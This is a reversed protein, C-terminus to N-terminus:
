IFLQFSFCVGWTIIYNNIYQLRINHMNSCTRLPKREKSCLYFPSGLMGATVFQAPTFVSENLVDSNNKILGLLFCVHPIVDPTPPLAPVANVVPPLSQSFRPRLKSFHICKTLNSSHPQFVAQSDGGCVHKGM